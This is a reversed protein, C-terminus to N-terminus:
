MKIQINTGGSAHQGLGVINSDVPTYITPGSLGLGQLGVTCIRIQFRM